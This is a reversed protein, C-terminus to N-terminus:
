FEQNKHIFETKLTLLDNIYLLEAEPIHVSYSNEIVSFAQQLWSLQEAPCQRDSVPYNEIAANRILREILCSIHVYLAVKRDNAVQCDALREYRLLFQEIQNIIKNTDLITVSEIVRHLSFNKLITNNIEKIREASLIDGFVTQLLENSHGAILGDLSFWAVSPVHPNLTGIIALVEHHNFIADTRKNKELTTYDCAIFEIDLDDPISSKLLSCLNGAAGIGTACTTIIVRQKNIEPYLLQHEVSLDTAINDTIAEITHGQLIREGTYLAMSTSVNNIIAVPISINDKFHQHILNLSGMDVLIVLGSILLTTDIYNALQQAIEAPTVDLPMDFSEFLNTKLLRNAVSAISSATAYGHALIVARTIKNHQLVNAKHLWLILLLHDIVSATLDLKQSILELLQLSFRYLMPHKQLLFKDLQRILERDALSSTYNDRHLLYHALAYVSNGNFHINFRHELRYFAERVQNTTFLLMHVNAQQQKDFILRDFLSEIEMAMRKEAEQWNIHGSLHRSFLLLINHQTNIIQKQRSNRAYILGILNTDKDLTVSHNESILPELGALQSMLVQPLDHISINLDNKNVAKAFATAVTYKVINKLEGVNAHYIHARLVSLLSASLTLRSAIKKAEQWFFLMILANKEESSRNELAPLTIQIPIRRIFTNLFTSHIEETTAFLLRVSLKHGQKSDGIRYIEGHDLYTFLKEQGDANLRHVEDLFLFGGNAAAFAGANDHNAGTFAGKVYGFLNAALLEPNSAYQACNFNIFPADVPLTGQAIAYEHLLKAMYSKGTGSDGTILLPLGGDPYFLATKLQSIAIALSADHGILLSFHDLKDVANHNESFLEEISAYESRLVPFFQKEFSSKHLFCVPRTTIKILIDQSVLQNLYHSATNRPMSFRHALYRTTFVESIEDPNFFDTQNILFTLLRTKRM